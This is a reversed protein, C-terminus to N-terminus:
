LSCLVFGRAEQKGIKACAGIKKASKVTSLPIPFFGGTLCPTKVCASTTLAACAFNKPAGIESVNRPVDLVVTFITVTAKIAKM